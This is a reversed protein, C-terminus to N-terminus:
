LVLKDYSGSFKRLTPKSSRPKAKTGKLGELLQQWIPYSHPGGKIEVAGGPLLALSPRNGCLETSLM